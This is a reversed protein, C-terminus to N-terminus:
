ADAALMADGPVLADLPPSEADVFPSSADLFEGERACRGDSCIFGSPCPDLTGCLRGEYNPSSFCAALSMALGAVAFRKMSGDINHGFAGTRFAEAKLARIRVALMRRMPVRAASFIVVSRM